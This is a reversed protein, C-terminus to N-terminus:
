FKMGYRVIAVDGRKPCFFAGEPNLTAMQLTGTNLWDRPLFFHLKVKSVDDNIKWTSLWFGHDLFVLMDQYTGILHKVRPTLTDISNNVPFSPNLNQMNSTPIVKIQSINASFSHGKKTTPLIQYILYRKDRTLAVWHVAKVLNAQANKEKLRTPTAPSASDLPAQPSAAQITGRSELTSWEFTRLVSHDVWLILEDNFPHEIWRRSQSYGWHRACLQKKTRLNWIRDASPTSILLLKEANNLLLQQVPEDLRLDLAGFVGWKSLEKVELRKAIIRGSDDASVIYKGSVSWVLAIVSSTSSHSCEECSRGKSQMM